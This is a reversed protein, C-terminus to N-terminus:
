ASSGLALWRPGMAYPAAPELKFRSVAERLHSAEKALSEAGAASEEVMAANQQTAQDIGGMAVRIINIGEHQENAATRIQAIVDTVQGVSQVIDRMTAGADKVLVSGRDVKDVSGDIISKVERAAQACRGALSRVETAVVAFGRGQEGARAAEVAANLALINTQFAIGDIVSIIEAIKKSSAQIEGMTSEVQTVVQGGRQAVRQASEASGVAQAASHATAQVAVSLQEISAATRQLSIAAHETRLALDSNAASIEETNNSVVVAGQHVQRVLHTLNQHMAGLDGLADGIEDQGREPLATSLDGQGWANATEQLGRIPILISRVIAWVLLTALASVIATVGIVLWPARATTVALEDRRAKARQSIANSLDALSREALGIDQLLPAMAKNAAWPDNLEGRELQRLLVRFGKDYGDLGARMADLLAGEDPRALRQSRLMAARVHVIEGNWAKVYRETEVEDGMTLFIDKEFRRANGISSRVDSLAAVSEFDGDIFATARGAERLITMTSFTGLAILGVLALALLLYLRYRIRLNQLLKM